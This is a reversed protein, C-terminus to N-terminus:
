FPYGIAVNLILNDGRWVSSGFDIENIVWRFKDELKPIKRLPMALDFRLIFFSVDVRLGVGTGVAVENMFKSFIFPTGINEPNSKLLWVNGADVFIAGKLYRMIGFRYEANMELKLDGGLQLFGISDTNQRYTGPGLSNIHFARISNPGGSFFQKSYPLVSSNGYTKAVGAFLRVALKNKDKFNFYGRYDISLKAFQSYVSGSITAPKEASVKSGSIVKVLSFLNGALEANLHIYSQIKKGPIVQENYTFSYSGGAIFKEEYSKELFSNGKVLLNFATSKNGVTTYSVDIPNLEHEKLINEKWKYGFVFQFTRMDFYSVRKLYNYSLLFHTKPIYISGTKKLNFPLLFRPYTLEVQPNWSYSFLNRTNGSLQAEFSGALSLSLLEAGKFTNRNLLSLNMRPGM